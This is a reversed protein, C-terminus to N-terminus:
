ESYTNGVFSNINVTQINANFDSNIQQILLNAVYANGRQNFHLGDLSFIGNIGVNGEVPVGDFYFLEDSILEGWADTKGTEAIKGIETNLDLLKIRMPYDAVLGTIVENFEDISTEIQQIQDQKLYGTEDIPVLIGIGNDIDERTLSYLLMENENLQRYKELPEGDPYYAEPLDNDIIIFSQPALNSGNDYFDIFPRQFEPGANRNHEAVAKNFKSYRAFAQLLEDNELFLSNYPRAYFYPLDSVAVLNGLVVSAQTSQMLEMILSEFNLSFENLSTLKEPQTAGKIAYDLYDNMGLWCVVFTPAKQTIQGILGPVTEDFVRPLFKNKTYPADSLESVKLLPVSVDNLENKNGSFGAIDEGPTLVRYPEEDTQNKFQYIWKGAKSSEQTVFLNFGNESDIGAQLFSVEEVTSIQKTLTTGISNAQGNSYLAGDMVGALFDDGVVLVNEPDMDGWDQRTPLEEEPFNYSCAALVLLVLLWSYKRTGKM